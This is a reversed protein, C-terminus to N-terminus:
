AVKRRDTKRILPGTVEEYYRKSNANVRARCGDCRLFSCGKPQGCQICLGAAHRRHEFARM